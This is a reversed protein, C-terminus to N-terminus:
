YTTTGLDTISFRGPYVRCSSPTALGSAPSRNKLASEWFYLLNGTSSLIIYRTFATIHYRV